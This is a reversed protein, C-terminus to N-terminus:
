VAGADSPDDEPPPPMDPADAMDGPPLDEPPPMDPATM